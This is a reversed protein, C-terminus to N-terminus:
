SNSLISGRPDRKHGWLVNHANFDGLLIVPAPLEMYLQNLKDLDIPQSPLLYVSCITVTHHLTVRAAVAKLTSNLTIHSQPVTEKVLLSVGGHPHNDKDVSALIDHSVYSRLSINKPM